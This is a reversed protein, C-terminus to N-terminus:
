KLIIQEKKTPKSIATSDLIIPMFIKAPINKPNVAIYLHTVWKSPSKEQNIGRTYIEMAPGTVSRTLKNKTIYASTEDWAQRSHSYDGTLTTKVSQFSELKGGTLDSGISTFIEEKVPICASFKAIGKKEDYSHYIVFPKGNNAINNKKCFDLLNPLMIKLNKSLNSIKSTITQQLYFTSTKTVLGNVEISYTKIEYDLRKDLNLLSKEYRNGIVKEAGGKLVAYIKDMFPLTGKTRWTVKTGGITDKFSWFVKSSSENCHMTQALSDNTKVFITKINGTGEAGSWSFSSGIGITNEPFNYILNSDNEKWSFWNEWNRYDNVYNFVVTKPSKIIKSRVIDYDGKQTAIFVSLAVFALLLLLFIYKLIRM